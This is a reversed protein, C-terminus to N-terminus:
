NYEILLALIHAPRSRNPDCLYLCIDTHVILTYLLYIAVFKYGVAIV